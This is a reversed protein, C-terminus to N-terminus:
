LRCEEDCGFWYYSLIMLRILLSEWDEGPQNRAGAFETGDLRTLMMVFM